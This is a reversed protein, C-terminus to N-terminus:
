AYYIPVERQLLLGDHCGIFSYKPLANEYGPCFLCHSPKAGMYAWGETYAWGKVNAYLIEGIKSRIIRSGVEDKIELFELM